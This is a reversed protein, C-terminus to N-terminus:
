PLNPDMVIMKGGESKIQVLDLYHDTM